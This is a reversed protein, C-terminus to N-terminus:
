YVVVDTICNSLYTESHSYIEAKFVSDLKESDMWKQTFSRYRYIFFDYKNSMLMWLQNDFSVLRTSSIRADLEPQVDVYDWKGAVQDYVEMEM